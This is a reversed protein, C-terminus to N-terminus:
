RDQETTCADPATGCIREAAADLIPGSVGREEGRERWASFGIPQRTAPDEVGTDLDIREVHPAPRSHDRAVPASVPTAAQQHRTTEAAPVAPARTAAVLQPLATRPAETAPAVAAGGSALVVAFAAAAFPASGSAVLSTNPDTSRHALTRVKVFALLALGHLEARVSRLHTALSRRARHLLADAANREIGLRQAIEAPTEGDLSLAIAMRQREPLADTARLVIRRKERRGAIVAPDADRDEIVPADELPVLVRRQRIRDILLNEAVRNILPRLDAHHVIAHPGNLFRLVRLTTEQALDAADERSLGRARFKRQLRRFTAAYEVELSEASQLPEIAM